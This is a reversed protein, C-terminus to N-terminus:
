LTALLCSAWVIWGVYELAGFAYWGKTMQPVAGFSLYGLRVVLNLAVAILFVWLFVSM